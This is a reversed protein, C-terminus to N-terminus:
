RRLIRKRAINIPGENMHNIWGLSKGCGYAVCSEPDDALTCRIGTRETLLMDMGWILSGGGTLTIGNEAIDAVLEPTTDELVSLVEDTIMRAPRQLVNFVESSTLTLERPTGNKADRGRIAITPDEQRPYVSGIQIKVEEATTEGIIVGYNRRVYRAITEDFAIGGIPISSSVAVGNMSLVAVNCTGGGVDVVMHGNPGKIDLNAGLAAALPAEILYVRRAGAEIAANIVTREEVETISSPVSVIVRPKPTFLSSKSVSRFLIQLMKVTMEHDSIVGDKLPSMAVVNGPTRGLMNRAAAGVQLIKGTNKDVAVVSPERAIVGKGDVYIRVNSTGLDVGLDHSILQM